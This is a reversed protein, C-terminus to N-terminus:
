ALCTMVDWRIAQGTVHRDVGPNRDGVSRDQGLTLSQLNKPFSVRELSQNFSKRVDKAPSLPSTPTRYCHLQLDEQSGAPGM